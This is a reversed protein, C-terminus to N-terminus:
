QMFVTMNVGAMEEWQSYFQLFNEVFTQLLHISGDRERWWWTPTADAERTFSLQRNVPARPLIPFPWGNRLTWVNRQELLGSWCRLWRNWLLQNWGSHFNFILSGWSFPCRHGLDAWSWREKPHDSLLGYVSLSITILLLRLILGIYPVTQDLSENREGKKM